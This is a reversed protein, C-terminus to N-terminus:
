VSFDSYGTPGIGDSISYQTKSVCIPIHTVNKQELELISNMAEKSYEVSSAQYIKHALIDIKEKLRM